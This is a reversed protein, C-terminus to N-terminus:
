ARERKAEVPLPAPSAVEVKAKAAGKRASKAPAAPEGGAPDYSLMLGGVKITEGPEGHIATIKGAFPAPVEMTAKDAMVEMLGQGRKVTDGPNVLWRVLEAEYVGEGLDPVRFDM